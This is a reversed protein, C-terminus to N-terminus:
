GRRVQGSVDVAGAATAATAPDCVRRGHQRRLWERVRRGKAKVQRDLELPPLSRRLDARVLSEAREVLRHIESDCPPPPPLRGGQGAAAGAGAAPEADTAVAAAEHEGLESLIEVATAFGIQELDSDDLGSNNLWDSDSEPWAPSAYELDSSAPDPRYARPARESETDSVHRFYFTACNDAPRQPSSFPEGGAEPGDAAVSSGGPPRALADDRHCGDADDAPDSVSGDATVVECRVNSTNVAARRVGSSLLGGGSGDSSDSSQGSNESSYGIDLVDGRQELKKAPSSPGSGPSAELVKMGSETPLYDDQFVSLALTLVDTMNCCVHWLNTLMCGCGHQVTPAAIVRCRKDGCLDGCMVFSGSLSRLVGRM